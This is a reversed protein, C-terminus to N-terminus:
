NKESCKPGLKTTM